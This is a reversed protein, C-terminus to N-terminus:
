RRLLPKGIVIMQRIGFYKNMGWPDLSGNELSIRIFRTEMEWGGLKSWGNYGEPGVEEDIQSSMEVFMDDKVSALVTYSKSVSTGWWQIEVRHINHGSGLDVEVWAAEEETWWESGSGDVINGVREQCDSAKCQKNASINTYQAEQLMNGIHIEIGPHSVFDRRLRSKLIEVTSFNHGYVLVKRIYDDDVARDSLKMNLYTAFGGIAIEELGGQSQKGKYLNDIWTKGDVSTRIQIDRDRSKEKFELSIHDLLSVQELDIEMWGDQSEKVGALNTESLLIIPLLEQGKVNIQRIGFYKKMGWPDLSGDKLELKIKRTKVEWGEFKSWSNLGQPKEVADETIKVQQYITGSTASVVFNKSVSSGWWQIDLNEV